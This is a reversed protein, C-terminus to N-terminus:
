PATGLAPNHSPRAHKEVRSTAMISKTWNHKIKSGLHSPTPDNDYHSKDVQRFTNLITPPLSILSQQPPPATFLFLVTVLSHLLHCQPQPNYYLLLARDSLCRRTSICAGACRLKAVFERRNLDQDPHSVSM